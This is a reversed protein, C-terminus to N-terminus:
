IGKVFADFYGETNIPHELYDKSFAAHQSIEEESLYAARQRIENATAYKDYAAKYGDVAKGEKVALKIGNELADRTQPWAQAQGSFDEAITKVLGDEKNAELFERCTM